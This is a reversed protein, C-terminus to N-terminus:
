LGLFIAGQQNMLLTAFALGLVLTLYKTRDGFLMKLRHPAHLHLIPDAVRLGATM